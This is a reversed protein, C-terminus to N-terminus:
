CLLSDENWLMDQFKAELYEEMTNHIARGILLLVNETASSVISPIRLEKMQEIQKLM